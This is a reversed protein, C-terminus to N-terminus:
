HATAWSSGSGVDVVIPVRLAAAGEMVRVVLSSAEEIEGAPVELLLEDHIQLVLRSALGAEAIATDLDVMAKKIIDAASGQIPTNTAVREALQRRGGHDSTIDPLYRRRGMLTAVFGHDRAHQLMQTYFRQVKPFKEFYRKIYEEAKVRSIGLERSLRQPGMGYIIGYNVVKAARRMSPSVEDLPVEFMDASTATHIDQGSRFAEILNEDASLHALVRLEIQNYDASVLAAGPAAVFASRIKAGEETRIPINQLNPDSSSLRGTAAVTQNLRTHIRGGADCLRPLSDVYTSKLKAMGRYELVLAPLPHLDALAELAESDTSLGTKTKKVGKSPLALKTFLLDRLQVPSLINFPGGAMEYIRAVLASMRRELLDSMEKLAASDILVGHAELAGLVSILPHELDRYLRSLERAELQAELIEAARRILEFAEDGLMADTAQCNLFRECIDERSHVGAEPDCLYSAVGLDLGHAGPVACFERVLAKLDFGVLSVERAALDAFAARIQAADRSATRDNGDSIAVALDPAGPTGSDCSAVLVRDRGMIAVRDRGMIAVRELFDVDGEEVVVAVTAAVVRVGPGIALEQQAGVQQSAAAALGAASEIRRPPTAEPEEGALTRMRAMLRQMELEEALEGLADTALKGLRLGEPTVKIPVDICVEALKRCLRAMDAGEEIKKRISAAGRLPLKEIEASRALMEEISGFHAILASATKPGIGKVGPINDSSDGMLGLVDPVAEPEVGFKERVLERNIVLDRVPDMLLTRATVCQMLDKDGTVLIVDYDDAEYSKAITALIDDAEYGDCDLVPIELANILRRVYPIQVALAEDPAVRNAKYDPYLERRFTKKAIDFCAGMLTPRRERILKELMTSVGHVAGTPLGKSTTLPPLAHYARFIFFSTDLLYVTGKSAM